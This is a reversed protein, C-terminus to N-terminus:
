EYSNLGNEILELYKVKFEKISHNNVLYSYADDGLALREQDSKNLYSVLADSINEVSHPDIVIGGAGNILPLMAPVNSAHYSTKCM